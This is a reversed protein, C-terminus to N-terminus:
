SQKKLTEQREILSEYRQKAQREILEVQDEYDKLIGRANNLDYESQELKQEAKRQAQRIGADTIKDNEDMRRM